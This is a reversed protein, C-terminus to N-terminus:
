ATARDLARLDATELLCSTAFGGILGWFPAGIHLIPIDAVTILFAVLAGLQCRTSFAISFASRLVPLIALGGILSIFSVPLALALRTAMPALLGFLAMCLGFVLAGLYQSDRPGSSVLIANAPGTVCTPVSGFVAFVCSGLGCLLTLTNIPPRHGAAILVAFGQANQAALVAIMLPLVLEALAQVSFHPAYLLPM